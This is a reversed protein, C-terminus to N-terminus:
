EKPLQHTPQSAPVSNKRGDAQAVRSLFCPYRTVFRWYSTNLNDILAENTLSSIYSSDSTHNCYLKYSHKAWIWGQGRKGRESGARERNRCYDPPCLSPFLRYATVNCGIFVTLSLLLLPVHHSRRWSVVNLSLVAVLRGVQKSIYKHLLRRRYAFAVKYLEIGTVVIFYLKVTVVIVVFSSRCSPRWWIGKTGVDNLRQWHGAVPSGCVFASKICSLIAVHARPRYLRYLLWNRRREAIASNNCNHTRQRMCGKNTEHPGTVGACLNRRHWREDTIKRM